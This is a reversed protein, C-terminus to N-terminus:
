QSEPERQRGGDAKELVDLQRAAREDSGTRVALLGTRVALLTRKSM